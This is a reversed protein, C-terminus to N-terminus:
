DPPYDCNLVSLTIYNRPSEKAQLKVQFFVEWVQISHSQWEGFGQM